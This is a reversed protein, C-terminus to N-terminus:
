RGVARNDSVPELRNYATPRHRIGQRVYLQVNDLAQSVTKKYTKQVCPKSESSLVLRSRKVTVLEAATQGRETVIYVGSLLLYCGYVALKQGSEASRAAMTTDIPIDGEVSCYPPPM